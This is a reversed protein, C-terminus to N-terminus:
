TCSKRGYNGLAYYSLWTTLIKKRKQSRRAYFSYTFRQPFQFRFPKTRSFSSESPLLNEWTLFDSSLTFCGQVTRKKFRLFSCTCDPFPEPFFIIIQFLNLQIQTQYHLILNMLKKKKKDATFICFLKM